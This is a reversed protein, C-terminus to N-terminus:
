ATVQDWTSDEHYIHYEPFYKLILWKGMSLILYSLILYSLILYSLIVSSNILSCIDTNDMKHEWEHYCSGYMMMSSGHSFLNMAPMEIYLINDCFTKWIIMDNIWVWLAIFMMREAEDNNIDIIEMWKGSSNEESWIEQLRRINKRSRGEELRKYKEESSMESIRYTGDRMEIWCFKSRLATKSGNTSLIM